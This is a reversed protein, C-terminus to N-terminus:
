PRVGALVDCVMDSPEGKPVYSDAGAAIAEAVMREDGYGSFVVVRGGWGRTRLEAIAQLGDRVPMSLDMLVVDPDLDLVTAVAADGDAAEGVLELRADRRVMLRVSLRLLESDDVVVLRVPVTGGAGVASVGADQAGAGATVCPVDPVGATGATLDATLDATM